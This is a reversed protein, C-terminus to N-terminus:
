DNYQQYIGRCILVSDGYYTYETCSMNEYARDTVKGCRSCRYVLM